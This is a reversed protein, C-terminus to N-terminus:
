CFGSPKFTKIKRPMTLVSPRAPVVNMMELSEDDMQRLLNVEEPNIGLFEADLNAGLEIVTETFKVFEVQSWHAWVADYPIEERERTMQHLSLHSVNTFIRGYDKLSYQDIKFYLSLNKVSSSPRALEIPREATKRWPNVYMSDDLDHVRVEVKHLVPLMTPYDISGLLQMTQEKTADTDISLEKLNVLAPFKLQTLPFIVYRVDLLQLTKCSSHLLLKLVDFYNKHRESELPADTVLTSLAPFALAFELFQIEHELSDMSLHCNDMVHYKERPVIDVTVEYDDVILKQLNPAASLIKLFMNKWCDVAGAELVKLHPLAPIWDQGFYWDQVEAPVTVLNLNLTQLVNDPDTLKELLLYMLFNLAPCQKPKLFDEDSDFYIDMHRLPLKKLLEESATSENQLSHCNRHCPSFDITLSNIIKLSTVQSALAALVGLNSCPNTESIEADCRRYTRIHFEIERNWDTSVFRCQKLIKLPLCSFIRQLVLQNRLADEMPGEVEDGGRSHSYELSSSQFISKLRSLM